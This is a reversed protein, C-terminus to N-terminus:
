KRTSGRLGAGSYQNKSDSKFQTHKFGSLKNQGGKYEKKQFKRSVVLLGEGNIDGKEDGKKQIEKTNLAAKM